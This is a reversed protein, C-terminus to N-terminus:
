IQLSSIRLYVATEGMSSNWLGHEEQYVDSNELYSFDWMSVQFKRLPVHATEMDAM